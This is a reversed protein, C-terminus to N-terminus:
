YQAVFNLDSTEEVVNVTQAVFQYRKSVARLVYTQGAQVDTFRYYGFVTTRTTKAEGDAGVITVLANRLGRGEPTLVRGGISVSAATPSVVTLNYSQAGAIGDSDTALVTFAYSGGQQITGALEGTSQNFCLGFPLSGSIISIIEPLYFFAIQM